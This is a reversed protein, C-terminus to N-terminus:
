AAEALQRAPLANPQRQQLRVRKGRDIASVRAQDHIWRTFPEWDGNVDICRLQLVAEAREKIWRMGGQDMRKGMINKIAGEVPGTSLELDRRELEDYNMMDLRKAFYAAIETLKERRYKNGPGTRPIRELHRHLEDVIRSAHGAYLLDKQQEVWATYAPTGERHLSTGADWLKEVAHIVDLTHEADPFLEGVYCALDPDGDTLVQVTRRTGPPFGRKTAERRAVEVAHRKPGFSAYCRKNIPGLLVDGQVTRSRRLTYMVVMTGCKGNKAKDGKKRRPKKTRRERTMRGRHRPSRARERRPRKGRRKALEEDTATPVAKSDIHIILVEGDDDPVPAHEFWAQTYRGYGLMAGEIVETSPAAPLFWRLVQWAESFSVRTAMRVAISLLNPSVRDAFLGLEADLPHFGRAPRGAPVVERLYTRAYRVLGFWTLLSRSQAPAIRFRRGDRVVREGLAAAVRAESAVLFLAIFSRGLAFVGEILAKEFAAFTTGDSASSLALQMLERVDRLVLERAAEVNRPAHLNSNRSLTAQSISPM